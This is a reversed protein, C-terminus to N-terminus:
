GTWEQDPRSPLTKILTRFILRRAMLEQLCPLCMRVYTAPTSHPSSPAILIASARPCLASLAPLSCCPLVFLLSALISHLALGGGAEEWGAYLKLVVCAGQGVVRRMSHARSRTRSFISGRSVDFVLATACATIVRM